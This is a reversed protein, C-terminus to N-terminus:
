INKIDRISKLAANIQDFICYFIYYHLINDCNLIIRRLAVNEAAM